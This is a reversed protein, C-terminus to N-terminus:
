LILYRKVPDFSLLYMPAPVAWRCPSFGVLETGFLGAAVLNNADCADCALLLGM